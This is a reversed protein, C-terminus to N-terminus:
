LEGRKILQTIVFFKDKENLDDKLIWNPNCMEIALRFPIMCLSKEPANANRGRGCRTSQKGTLKEDFRKSMLESMNCDKGSYGQRGKESYSSQSSYTDGINVWCTGDDRLVRKVEDFIDCLKNIYEDFTNEMGIQKPHGYDRLGWYPPSTMCMNISKEPLEKLKTLADGNLIKNEIEKIQYM